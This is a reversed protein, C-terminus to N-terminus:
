EAKDKPPRGPGRKAELADLRAKLAEIEATLVSVDPAAKTRAELQSLRQEAKIAWVRNM